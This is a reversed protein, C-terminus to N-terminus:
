RPADLFQVVAARWDAAAEIPITHGGDAFARHEGGLRRALERVEDPPALRDLTGGMVLTPCRVRPVLAQTAWPSDEPLRLTQEFLARIGAFSNREVTARVMPEVLEAHARLYTPGVIDVLSIRALAELDGTKLAALWGDVILRGMVGRDLGVGSLVLRRIVEPARRRSRWASGDASRSAACIWRHPCSWRMSWRWSIRPMDISASTM